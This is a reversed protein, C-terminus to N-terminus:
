RGRRRKMLEVISDATADITDGAFGAARLQRKIRRRMERQVDDKHVWDVLSVQPEIQEELLSAIRGFRPVASRCSGLPPCSSDSSTHRLARAM